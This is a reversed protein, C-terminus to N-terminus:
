SNLLMVFINPASFGLRAKAYSDKRVLKEFFVKDRLWDASLWM